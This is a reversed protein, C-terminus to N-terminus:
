VQAPSANRTAFLDRYPRCACNRPNSLPHAGRGKHTDDHPVGYYGECTVCWYHEQHFDCRAPRVVNGPKCKREGWRNPTYYDACTSM